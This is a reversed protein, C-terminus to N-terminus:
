LRAAESVPLRKLKADKRLKEVQEKMKVMEVADRLVESKRHMLSM